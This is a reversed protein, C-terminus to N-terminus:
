GTIGIHSVRKRILMIYNINLGPQSKTSDASDTSDTHQIKRVLSGRGSIVESAVKGLSQQSVSTAEDDHYHLSM